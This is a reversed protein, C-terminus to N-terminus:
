SLPFFRWSQTSNFFFSRTGNNTGGYYAWTSQSDVYVWAYTGDATWLWGLQTDYIWFSNEDNELGSGACFWWGQDEHYITPYSITSFNGLWSSNVWGNGLATLTGFYVDVGVGIQIAAIKGWDGTAIFQSDIARLVSLEPSLVNENFTWNVGDSSSLVNGDPSTAAIWGNVAALSSLNANAFSQVSVWTQGDSSSYITSANDDTAVAWYKDLFYAFGNVSGSGGTFATSWNTGNTNLLISGDSTGALFRSELFEMSVIDDSTSSNATSWIIASPSTSVVMVGDKGGAYFRNSGYSATLLDTSVPSTRSLWNDGTQLSVFISGNDGVMVWWDGGITLGNLNESTNSSRNVWTTGNVSGAVNGNEGVAVYYGGSLMLDNYNGNPGQNFSGWGTLGSFSFYIKGGRGIVNWGRTSGVVSTYNADINEQVFRPTWTVANASTLIYGQDATILYNNDLYAISSFIVGDVSTPAASGAWSAGSQSTFIRTGSSASSVAIFQSSGPAVSVINANEGINGATWQVANTSRSVVGSEGVAVFTSGLFAISNLPATTGADRVQWVTGDTSTALFADGNLEGVAVFTGLGYTIDRFNATQGTVTSWSSGDTSKVVTGNDGVALAIAESLVVGRLTELTVTGKFQWQNADVSTAITGNEGVLAYLTESPNVAIDFLDDGTPTPNKWTINQYAGFASVMVAM